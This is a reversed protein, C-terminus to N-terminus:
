QFIVKFYIFLSQANKTYFLHCRPMPDCHKPAWLLLILCPVLTSSPAGLCWLTGLAFSHPLSGINLEPHRLMSQPAQTGARHCMHAVQKPSFDGITIRISMRTNKKTWFVLVLSRYIGGCSTVKLYSLLVNLSFWLLFIQNLSLSLSLYVQM